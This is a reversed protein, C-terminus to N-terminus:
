GLCESTHKSLRHAVDIDGDVGIRIILVNEVRDPFRLHPGLDHGSRGLGNAM